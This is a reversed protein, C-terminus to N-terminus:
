LKRLVYIEENQQLAQKISKLPPQPKPNAKIWGQLRQEVRKWMKFTEEREIERKAELFDNEWKRIAHIFDKWEKEKPTGTEVAEVIKSLELKLIEWDNFKYHVYKRGVKIVKGGSLYFTNGKRVVFTYTKGVQIKTSM